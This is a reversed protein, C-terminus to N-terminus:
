GSRLPFFRRIDSPNMDGNSFAEDRRTAPKCRRLLVMFLGEIPLDVYAGSVSWPREGVRSPGVSEWGEM